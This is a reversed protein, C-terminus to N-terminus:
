ERVRQHDRIAEVAERYYPDLQVQVLFWGPMGEIESSRLVRGALEFRPTGQGRVVPSLVTWVPENVPMEQTTICRLVSGILDVTRTDAEFAPQRADLYSRLPSMCLGALEVRDKRAKWKVKVPEGAVSSREAMSM